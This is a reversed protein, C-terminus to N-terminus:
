DTDADFQAEGTTPLDSSDTGETDSGEQLHVGLRQILGGIEELSGQVDELTLSTEVFIPYREVFYYGTIKRCAARYTEIAPDYVLAANLLVELDHIRRLEWGQALLFAKLYKEVAQQLFFGAAEADDLDLMNKARRLDKKAIREWDLPYRSEEPTM